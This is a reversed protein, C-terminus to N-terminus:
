QNELTKFMRELRNVVGSKKELTANLKEADVQIKEVRSELARISQELQSVREPFAEVLSDISAEADRKKRTVDATDDELQRHLDSTALEIDDKARIHATALDEVHTDRTHEFIAKLESVYDAGLQELKGSLTLQKAEIEAKLEELQAVRAETEKSLTDMKAIVTEGRGRVNDVESTARANLDRTLSATLAALENDLETASAELRGKLETVLSEMEKGVSDGHARLMEDIKERMQSRESDIEEEFSRVFREIADRRFEQRQEDTMEGFGGFNWFSQYLGIGSFVTGAFLCILAFVFLRSGSFKRNVNSHIPGENTPSKESESVGSLINKSVLIIAQCKNKIERRFEDSGGEPTQRVSDLLTDLETRLYSAEPLAHRLTDGVAALWLDLPKEGPDELGEMVKTWHNEREAAM